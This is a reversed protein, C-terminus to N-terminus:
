GAPKGPVGAQLNHSKKAEVFMYPLEKLLYGRIDLDRSIYTYFYRKQETERSFWLIPVM